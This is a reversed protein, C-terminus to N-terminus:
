LPLWEDADGPEAPDDAVQEPPTPTDRGTDDHGAPVTTEDM